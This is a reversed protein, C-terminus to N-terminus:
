LLLGLISSYLLAHLGGIVFGFALFVLLLMFLQYQLIGRIVPHDDGLLVQLIRFADFMPFVPLALNVVVLMANTLLMSQGMILAARGYGADLPVGALVLVRLVLVVLLCLLLNMLPGALAVLIAGGREPVGRRFRVPRVDVPRGWGLYGSGLFSMLAPWMLTGMPDMHVLPDFSLRGDQQPTKDGLRVAVFAHAWEHATISFLMTVVVLLTRALIPLEEM